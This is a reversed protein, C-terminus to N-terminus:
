GETLLYIVPIKLNIDYPLWSSIQPLYELKALSSIAAQDLISYGSSKYIKVNNIKGNPSVRLSLLVKGQWNRKQALKPYRFHQNLEQYIISIVRAKSKAQQNNEATFTIKDAASIPKDKALILPEKTIQAPAEQPTTKKDNNRSISKEVFNQELPKHKEQIKVNMASGMSSPLVINTSSNSTIVLAAHVGASVLIFSMIPSLAKM